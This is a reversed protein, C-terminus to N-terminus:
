PRHSLSLPHVRPTGVGRLMRNWVRIAESTKFQKALLTHRQSQWAFSQRTYVLEQAVAGRVGCLHLQSILVDCVIDGQHAAVFAVCMPVIRTSAMRFISTLETRVRQRFDVKASLGKPFPSPSASSSWASWHCVLLLAQCDEWSEQSVSLSCCGWLAGDYHVTQLLGRDIGSTFRSSVLARAREQKEPQAAGAFAKSVTHANTGGFGFSSLGCTIESGVMSTLSVQAVLVCRWRGWNERAHVGVISM